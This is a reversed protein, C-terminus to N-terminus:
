FITCWWITQNHHISYPGPYVPRDDTTGEQEKKLLSKIKKKNDYICSKENEPLHLSLVNLNYTRVINMNKKHIHLLCM